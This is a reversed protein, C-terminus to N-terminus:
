PGADPAPSEAPPEGVPEAEGVPPVFEDGATPVLTPASGPIGGPSAAGVERLPVGIETPAPPPLDPAPAAVTPPPTADWWRSAAVGSMVALIVVVVALVIWRTPASAASAPPASVTTRSLTVPDLTLREEVEAAPPATAVSSRPAGRAAAVESVLSEPGLDAADIPTEDLEAITPLAAVPSGDPGRPLEAAEDISSVALRLAAAMETASGYRDEPRYATACRIVEAVGAPLHAIRAERAAQVYLDVPRKATVMAYLTAAIGYLDAQPGVRRPDDRQEPSMYAWTGLTMGTRTHGASNTESRAIGFDTLKVVGDGDLLLNQPKIDRHIVGADHAVQLADLVQAVLTGAIVPAIRGGKVIRDSVSGGSLLEMVMFVVNDDAGLDHVTVLNAHRLRAMTRAEELFRARITDRSVAEDSLVKVARDVALLGDWARYVVAMGGSGLVDRLTYRGNQLKQGTRDTL